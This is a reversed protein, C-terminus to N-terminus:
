ELWAISAAATPVAAHRPAATLVGGVVGGERDAALYAGCNHACSVVGDHMRRKTKQGVAEAEPRESAISPPCWRPMGIPPHRDQASSSRGLCVFM